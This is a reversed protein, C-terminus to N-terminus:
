QFKALNGAPDFQLERLPSAIELDERRKAEDLYAASCEVEALQLTNKIWVIKLNRPEAMGITPLAADLLERDTDFSIPLMVADVSGSTLGNTRTVQQDVQRVLRATCFEAMGIGYANGHTAETLSRVAIRRVKPFEEAAAEHRHYKRGVVNTDMGSGSIDKGMEDVILLDVMGFPLRPMWQRALELLHKEREEIERPLMAEIRATEDYGNEVIGLGAVVHCKAIVQAAVSRVVQGFGYDRIARHCVKAGEHKGLGLAMMKMLGSEIDGAFVTHPKVRGCVLVHDAEFAHRDFHVPIGESTEGVVVTEM